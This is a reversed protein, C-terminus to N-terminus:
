CERLCGLYLSDANKNAFRINRKDKKRCACLYYNCAMDNVQIELIQPMGPLWKRMDADLQKKETHDAYESILFLETEQFCTAFGVNQVSIILNCKKRLGRERKWEVSEVLFRYGLHAGIYDFLSCGKWSEIQTCTSNKWKDLMKEDYASNLYGLHMKKMEQIMRRDSINWEGSVAEGSSPKSSCLKQLFDLEQERMWVQEWGAERIGTGFTGLDTSSAFLADDFLSVCKEESSEYVTESFMKRWLLPTRVALYIEEGLCPQICAYLKKLDEPQLYSSAHMEGWSGIMLGQILFVSHEVTQLVDSIQCLHQCIIEITEPERVMGEGCCDYVPRLIVDKQMAHFFHLISCFHQIAEEELARDRYAYFDVMVLVVTEHEKLCWRLEEEEIGTQVDFSYLTYWGRGPNSIRETCETLVDAHFETKKRMDDTGKKWNMYRM